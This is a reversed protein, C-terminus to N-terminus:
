KKRLKRDGLEFTIPDFGNPYLYHIQEPIAEYPSLAQINRFVAVGLAQPATADLVQLNQFEGDMGLQFGLRIYYRRADPFESLTDQIVAQLDTHLARKYEVHLMADDYNRAHLKPRVPTTRKPEPFMVVSCGSLFTILCALALAGSRIVKSRNTRGHNM